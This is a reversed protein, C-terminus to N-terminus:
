SRMTKATCPSTAVIVQLLGSLRLAKAGAMRTSIASTTRWASNARQHQRARPRMEARAAVQAVNGGAAQVVAAPAPAQGAQVVPELVQHPQVFRHNGGDIARGVAGSEAQRQRRVEDNGAGARAKGHGEDADTHHRVARREVGQRADDARGRHQVQDEAGALVAQHGVHAPLADMVARREVVGIDAGIAVVDGKAGEFRLEVGQQKVGQAQGIPRLGASVCARLPVLGSPGRAPRPQRSHKQRPWARVPLCQQLGSIDAKAGQETGHFGSSRGPM